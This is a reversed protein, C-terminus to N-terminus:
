SDTQCKQGNGRETQEKERHQHLFVYKSNPGANRALWDEAQERSLHNRAAEIEYAYEGAAQKAAIRAEIEASTHNAEIMYLDYNKAEIGDLSSCDTAYFIREKNQWISYACNRANHSIEEAKITCAISDSAYFYPTGTEYAHIASKHTGAEILPGVMWECCGWRVAPRERHLARVTAPKFHDGHQHTLLVLKIQKAYPQLKKWSVGCDVLICGNILVANGASGTAIIEYTMWGAWKRRSRRRKSM